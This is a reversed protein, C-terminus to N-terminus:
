PLMNNKLRAVQDPRLPTLHPSLALVGPSVKEPPIGRLLYVGGLRAAEFALESCFWSSGRDNKRWRPLFRLVGFYDYTKGLQLNLFTLVPITRTEVSYFDIGSIDPWFERRRVGRFPISEFVGEHTVIAVHSYKSWTQWRVLASLFGRGRCFALIM